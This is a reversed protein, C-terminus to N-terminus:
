LQTTSCSALFNRSKEQYEFFSQKMQIKWMATRRKKREQGSRLYVNAEYLSLTLFLATLVFLVLFENSVRQEPAVAIFSSCTRGRAHLCIKGQKRWNFCVYVRATLVCCVKKVVLIAVANYLTHAIGGACFERSFDASPARPLRTRERRGNVQNGSVSRCGRSFSLTKWTDTKGLKEISDLIEDRRNIGTKM